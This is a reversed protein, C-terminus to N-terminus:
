LHENHDGLVPPCVMAEHVSCLKVEQNEDEPGDPISCDRCCLAALLIKYCLESCTNIHAWTVILDKKCIVCHYIHPDSTDM